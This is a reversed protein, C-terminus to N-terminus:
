SLLPNRGKKISASFLFVLWSLWSGSQGDNEDVHNLHFIGKFLEAGVHWTVSVFLLSISLYLLLFVYLVREIFGFEMRMSDSTSVWTYIYQDVGYTGHYGIPIFFSTALVLTGLVPVAWFWQIRKVDQFTRNFIAMNIYGTFVYTAGSVSNLTPLEGMYHTMVRVADWDMSQSRIAKYLIFVILPLNIIIVIEMLYLVSRSSGAAVWASVILFFALLTLLNFDPNVFRQIIRAYSVVVFSGAAIWMAALFILYPVRFWAPFAAEFIEPLGQGPFALISKTFWYSSLSGVAISLIISMMAGSFRETLLMRPVFVVTNTLMCMLVMYM